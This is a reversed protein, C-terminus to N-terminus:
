LPFDGSERIWKEGSTDGKTEGDPGDYRARCWSIGPWLPPKPMMYTGYGLSVPKGKCPILTYDHLKPSYLGMMQLCFGPIFEDIAKKSDNVIHVKM